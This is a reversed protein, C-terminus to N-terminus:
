RRLKVWILTTLMLQAGGRETQAAGNMVMAFTMSQIDYFGQSGHGSGFIFPTLLLSETVKIKVCVDTDTMMPVRKDGSGNIAYINAQGVLLGVRSTPWGHPEHRVSLYPEAFSNYCKPHGGYPKSETTEEQTALMTIYNAINRDWM